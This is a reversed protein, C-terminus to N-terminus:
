AINPVQHFAFRRKYFVFGIDVGFDYLLGLEVQIDRKSKAIRRPLYLSTSALRKYLCSSDYCGCSYVALVVFLIIKQGKKSGHINGNDFSIRSCSMPSYLVFVMFLTRWTKRLCRQVQSNQAFSGFENNYHHNCSWNSHRQGFRSQNGIGDLIRTYGFLDTSGFACRTQKRELRLYSRRITADPVCQRFSTGCRLVAIYEEKEIRIRENTKRRRNNQNQVIEVAINYCLISQRELPKNILGSLLRYINASQFNPYILLFNNEGKSSNTKDYLIRHEYM